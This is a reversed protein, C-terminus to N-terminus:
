PKSRLIGKAVERDKVLQQKLQEINDFKKEDRIRKRFTLTVDGGYLDGEFDFINVEITKNEMNSNLTPRIGINLMGDYVVSESELNVAYVGDGPILKHTDHPSINATPFGILRGIRNGGTVKGQLFYNYGLYKNAEELKGNMLLDRILTSSIMEGGNLLPESQEITFKYLEACKKLNLFDGERNRGFKHNHGTILHHIGIKDVLVEKIFRCSALQSFDKTFEIVVLHDIGTKDLLLVKEDFSSLYKLSRSDNNLVQRPHPWLTLVVSEGKVSKAVSKLKELMYRHGAHVGDFIGITVVPNAFSFHETHQWIQM